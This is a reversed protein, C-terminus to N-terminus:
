PFKQLPLTIKLIGCVFPLFVKLQMGAALVAMRM